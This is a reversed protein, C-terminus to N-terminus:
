DFASLRGTPLFRPVRRCYALYEEGFAGGLVREEARVRVLLLAINTVLLLAGPWALTPLYLSWAGLVEAVYLPNRSLGYPGGTVLRRAQPLIAFSRRLYLLSWVAYAISILFTVDTPLLLWDRRPAAPLLPVCLVMFTAIFSTAVIWPRRDGGRPRMRFLYLGALLAFYAVTLASNTARLWGIPFGGNAVIAGSAHTVEGYLLLTFVTAPVVHGAVLDWLRRASLLRL